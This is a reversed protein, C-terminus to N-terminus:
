RGPYDPLYPVVEKRWDNRDFTRGFDEPPTNGGCYPYYMNKQALKEDRRIEASCSLKKDSIIAIAATLEKSRAKNLGRSPSESGILRSGQAVVLGLVIMRWRNMM